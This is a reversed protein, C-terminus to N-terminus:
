CSDKLAVSADSRCKKGEVAEDWPSWCLSKLYTTAEGLREYVVDEGFPQVHGVTEAAKYTASHKMLTRHGTDAPPVWRFFVVELCDNAIALISDGWRNWPTICAPSWAINRARGRLRQKHRDILRSDTKAWVDYAAMM